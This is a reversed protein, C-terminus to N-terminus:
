RRLMERVLDPRDSIVVAVGLAILRRMDAPENVTWVGLTVGAQRAHTVAAATVLTRDLGIFAVGARAAADLAAALTGGTQELGRASLLAGVRLSPRLELLRRWTAPEFAMVVAAGAMGHRDLAAVVKEEIGPYRNRGPDVKIEVLLQRRASATLALVEDLTPVTEATVTGDRDRLRLARLEAVTRDRVPGTGTTTRDLFADHIVVTEDDRSLHVDLELYEVGLGLANVFAGRSNEPWLMAGGRHAAVALLPASAPPFADAVSALGGVALAAMLLVLPDTM